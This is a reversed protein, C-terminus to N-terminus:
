GIFIRLGKKKEFTIGDEEPKFENCRGAKLCKKYM